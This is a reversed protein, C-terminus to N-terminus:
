RTSGWKALIRIADARYPNAVDDLNDGIFNALASRDAADVYYPEHETYRGYWLKSNKRERVLAVFLVILLLGLVAAVIWPLYDM